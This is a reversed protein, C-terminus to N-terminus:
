ASPARGRALSAVVAALEAPQVPKPIHIQFGATLARIRDETGAYATLAAAPTLGGLEPPLHRVRAMLAYGDEEPMEIDSILVHPRRHQLLALAEGAASAALVEAGCSALAASVIERSDPEDDVVLVRVGHLRPAAAVPVDQEAAPNRAGALAPQASPRVSMRPLRVVFVAGQGVTRNGAAVTGGHLEVLNRVIALGLGLGGHRRTSSSDAQRFRDFVYPIFAEELGPGTDEVAIEVHSNVRALAVRVHGGRTTFKVANSLLNWLVQQLRDPDALVPGANPDLVERIAIEKATAAPRVTDIATRILPALEVARLDLRLTGATIRQMDLIDGV